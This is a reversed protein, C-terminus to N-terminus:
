IGGLEAQCGVHRGKTRVVPIRGSLYIVFVGARGARVDESVCVAGIQRPSPFLHVPQAAIEAEARSNCEALHGHPATEGCRCVIIPLATGAPWAPM